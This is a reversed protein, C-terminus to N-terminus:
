PARREKEHNNVYKWVHYLAYALPKQVWTQSLAYEYKIKLMDIITQLTM